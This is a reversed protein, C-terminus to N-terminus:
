QGQEYSVVTGGTPIGGGSPANQQSAVLSFATAMALVIAAITAILTRM